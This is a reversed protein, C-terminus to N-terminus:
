NASDLSDPLNRILSAVSKSAALGELGRRMNVNRIRYRQSLRIGGRTVNKRVASLLRGSTVRRMAALMLASIEIKGLSTL